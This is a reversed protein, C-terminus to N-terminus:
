NLNLQKSTNRKKGRQLVLKYGDYGYKLADSVKAITASSLGTLREIETYPYGDNLMNAVKFRNVLIELEKVSMLDILFKMLENENRTLLLAKFFTQFDESNFKEFTNPNIM